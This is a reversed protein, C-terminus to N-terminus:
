FTLIRSTAHGAAVSVGDRATPTPSGCNDSTFANGRVIVSYRAVLGRQAPVPRGSGPGDLRHTGTLNEIMAACDRNTRPFQRGRRPTRPTVSLEHVPRPPPVYQQPQTRHLALQPPLDLVRQVPLELPHVGDVPGRHVFEAVRVVLQLLLKGLQPPVVGHQRPARALRFAVLGVTVPLVGFQQAVVLTQTGPVGFQGVRVIQEAVPGGLQVRAAPLLHQNRARPRDTGTLAGSGQVALAVQEAALVATREQQQLGRGSALRDQVTRDALPAARAHVERVRPRSLGDVHHHHGLHRDLHVEGNRAM